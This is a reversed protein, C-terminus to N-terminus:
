EIQLNEFQNFGVVHKYIFYLPVSIFSATAFIGVFCLLMGVIQALFGAVLILGFTLFWKKNGLEFSLKVLSSVTLEPNFAYVVVLLNMPVIVYFVPFYCLLVALLTIGFNAFALTITKGLYPRKLFYFYDDKGIVNMDYQFMIRFFAAKMGLTIVMLVFVIFAYMLISVLILVPALNNLMSSHSEGLIGFVILPIYIVFIAPIAIAMLLLFMVLGQSWIMKFLEISENLIQGFDLQKANQIKYQIEAFLM